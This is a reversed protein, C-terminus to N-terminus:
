DENEEEDEVEESMDQLRNKRSKLVNMVPNMWDQVNYCMKKDWKMGTVNELGIMVEDLIVPM